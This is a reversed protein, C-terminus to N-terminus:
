RKVATEIKVPLSGHFPASNAPSGNEWHKWTNAANRGKPCGERLGVESPPISTPSRGTRLPNAPMKSDECQHLFLKGQIYFNLFLPFYPVFGGFGAGNSCKQQEM